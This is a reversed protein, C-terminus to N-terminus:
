RCAFDVKAALLVSTMLALGGPAMVKLYDAQLCSCSPCSPCDGIAMCTIEFDAIRSPASQLEEIIAKDLGM